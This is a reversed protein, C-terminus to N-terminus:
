KKKFIIEMKYKQIENRSDDPVMFIMSRLQGLKYKEYELRVTLMPGLLSDVFSLFTISSHM